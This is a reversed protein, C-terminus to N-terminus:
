AMKRIELHFRNIKGSHDTATSKNTIYGFRSLLLNLYQKPRLLIVHKSHPNPHFIFVHATKEDKM